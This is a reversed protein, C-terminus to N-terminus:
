LLHLLCLLVCLHQGTCPSLTPSHGPAQDIPLHLFPWTLISASPHSTQDNARFRMGAPNFYNGITLPRLDLPPHIRQKRGPQHYIPTVLQSSPRFLVRTRSLCSKTCFSSLILTFGVFKRADAWRTHSAHWLISIPKLLPGFVNTTMKQAAYNLLRMAFPASTGLLLLAPKQMQSLTPSGLTAYGQSVTM